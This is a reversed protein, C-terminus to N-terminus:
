QTPLCAGSVPCPAGAHSARTAIRSGLRTHRRALRPHSALYVPLQSTACSPHHWPSSTLAPPSTMTNTSRCRRARWSLRCNIGRRQPTRPASVRRRSCVHVSFLVRSSLVRRPISILLPLLTRLPTCLFIRVLFHLCANARSHADAIASNERTLTGRTLIIFHLPRHRMTANGHISSRPSSHNESTGDPRCIM